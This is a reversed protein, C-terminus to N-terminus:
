KNEKFKSIISKGFKYKIIEHGMIIYIANKTALMGNMKQKNENYIYFSSVYSNNTLDYVDITAASKWNKQSEYRGRLGSQNFLLNSYTTSRLNVNYPPAGMKVDGSQTIKVIKLKAKTTTDITKGRYRLQLNNNAVIFQNRYYYTYIITKFEESYSLIGDTDFIGDIQKQLLDNEKTVKLSNSLTISGLINQNTPSEQGRFICKNANVPQLETFFPSNSVWVKAKWDSILGKYIVPVTGDYLFFYPAIVKVRVAKFPFKDTSIQIIHRKKDKLSQGVEIITLPSARNALYIKENDRGAFYFKYNNLDLVSERDASYPSFRRIFPNEKQMIDESSLFLFYVFAASLLLLLSLTTIIKFNVKYFLISSLSLIVFILNFILHETWGLKELIGGCSCPIYSTFNLIVVIYATFIVMLSFSLYLAILRLSTVGLLVSILLEVLIVLYSIIQAYPSLLPSQGLQTQFNQFDIIKSVAAYTFLFIHLLAIAYIFNNRFTSNLKM